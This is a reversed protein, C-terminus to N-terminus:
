NRLKNQVIAVRERRSVFGTEFSIFFAMECKVPFFYLSLSIVLLGVDNAFRVYPWKINNYKLLPQLLQLSGFSFFGKYSENFPTFYVYLLSRSVAGLKMM